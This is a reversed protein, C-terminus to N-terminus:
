LPIVIRNHCTLNSLIEGTLWTAGVEDAPRVVLEVSLDSNGVQGQIAQVPRAPHEAAVTAVYRQALVVSEFHLTSSPSSGLMVIM